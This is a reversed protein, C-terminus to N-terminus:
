SAMALWCAGTAEMHAHGAAAAALGGGCLGKAGVGVSSPLLGRLARHADYLHAVAVGGVAERPVRMCPHPPVPGRRRRPSRAHPQTAPAAAALGVAAARCAPGVAAARRAPRHRCSPGGARRRRPALARRAPLLLLQADDDLDDSSSRAPACTARPLARAARRGAARATTCPVGALKRLSSYPCSLFSTAAPFSVQTFFENL